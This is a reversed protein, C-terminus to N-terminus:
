FRDPNHTTASRTRDHRSHGILCQHMNKTGNGMAAFKLKLKATNVNCKVLITGFFKLVYLVKYAEIITLSFILLRAFAM